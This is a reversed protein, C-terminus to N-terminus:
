RIEGLRSRPRLLGLRAEEPETQPIGLRPDRHLGPQGSRAAHRAERRCRLQHDGERAPCAPDPYGRAHEATKAEPLLVGGGNWRSLAGAIVIPGERLAEAARVGRRLLSHPRAQYLRRGALLGQGPEFDPAPRGAPGGFDTWAPERLASRFFSRAGRSMARNSHWIAKQRSKRAPALM